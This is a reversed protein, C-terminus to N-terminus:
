AGDGFMLLVGELPADSRNLFQHSIEPPIFLTQGERVTIEEEGIIATGEGRTFVMMSPFPNTRSNEDENVHHGPKISFWASRFGPQYYFITVDSGHTFRTKGEDFPIIEPIGRNWFHFLTRMMNAVFEQDPQFGEMAEVDMPTSDTSFAKAMATGANMKGQAVANFADMDEFWFYWSPQEPFGPFLQVNGPQGKEGETAVVHWRDTEGIQIGFTVDHLMPDHAYDEAYARLTDEVSEAFANFPSIALSLLTIAFINKM